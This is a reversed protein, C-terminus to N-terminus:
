SSAQAKRVLSEWYSFRLYPTSRIAPSLRAQLAALYGTSWSAVERWDDVAAVPLGPFADYFTSRHVIPIVGLYLAEWTRHCDVGNGPPSAVFAYGALIKRYTRSNVRFPLEDVSAASRLAERAALREAPNTQVSFASLIRPARDRGRQQLKRFDRLVGNYHLNRNELGIPVATLRPHRMAANQAFWHMLAPHSAITRYSDDINLDGNHTVLVFPEDAHDLSETAFRALESSQVFVISGKGVRGQLSGAPPELVFDAIARFSDGSVFPSSSPRAGTLRYWARVLRSELAFPVNAPDL